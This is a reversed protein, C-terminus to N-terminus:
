KGFKEFNRNRKNRKKRALESKLKKRVSPKLYMEKRKADSIVGASQRKYAGWVLSFPDSEGKEEKLKGVISTAALGAVVPIKEPNLNSSSDFAESNKDNM